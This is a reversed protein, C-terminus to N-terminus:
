NENLNAEKRGPAKPSYWNWASIRVPYKEQARSTIWPGMKLGGLYPKSSCSFDEAVEMAATNPAGRASGHQSPLLTLSSSTSGSSGWSCVPFTNPCSTSGTLRTHQRSKRGGGMCTTCLITDISRMDMPPQKPIFSHLWIHRYFMM